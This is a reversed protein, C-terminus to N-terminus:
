RLLILIPSFCDHTVSQGLYIVEAGIRGIVFHVHALQPEGAQCLFDRFQLLIRCEDAAVASCEGILLAGEAGGTRCVALLLECDGVQNVPDPVNQGEKGSWSPSCSRLTLVVWTM